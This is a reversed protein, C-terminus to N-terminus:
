TRERARQGIVKTQARSGRKSGSTRLAAQKARPCTTPTKPQMKSRSDLKYDPEARPYQPLKQDEM